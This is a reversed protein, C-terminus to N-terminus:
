TPKVANSPSSAKGVGKANKAAVRFTYSKGATLNTVTQTTATSNFTRATQAVGNRYPTVVYATIPSGGNSAPAKWHVTAKAKGAKATVATPAGPPGGIKVANTVVSSSVGVANAAEIKFQYTKGNTLGTVTATTATSNFARPTLPSSGLFPIVIYGTIPSGGNSAPASWRLTARANGAAASPSRPPSPPNAGLQSVWTDSQAGANALGGFVVDTGTGPNEAMPAFARASPSTTPSQEVWNGGNWMWTDSLGQSGADGGFLRVANAATDHGISAGFRPPPTTAPARQAWNTGNWTWTDSRANSTGASAGGFLVVDAGPPDYSMAAGSRAPPKTAPFRQTWTTGNFLWTESTYDGGFLLVDQTTPDYALSAFYRGQPGTAPSQTWTTGDWVWTGDFVSTGDEGGFLVVKGISPDYTIAAFFLAPPSTAPAQQTWTSGDWLWTDSLAVGANDQGGFLVVNGTAADYTMAAGVRASPSAAPSQKAWDFVGAAAAPSTNVAAAGLLIGAVLVVRFGLRRTM